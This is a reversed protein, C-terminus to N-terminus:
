SGPVGLQTSREVGSGSPAGLAEVALEEAPLGLVAPRDLHGAAVPHEAQAALKASTESGWPTINPITVAGGCSV